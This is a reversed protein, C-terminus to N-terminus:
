VPLRCTEPYPQPGLKPRHVGQSRNNPEIHDVATSPCIEEILTTNSALCSDTMRWYGCTATFSSRFWFPGYSRTLLMRTKSECRRSLLPNGVSMLRVALSDECGKAREMVQTVPEEDWFPLSCLCVLSWPFCREGLCKRTRRSTAKTSIIRGRDRNYHVGVLVIRGNEKCRQLVVKGAEMTLFAISSTSRSVLALIVGYLMDVADSGDPVEAQIAAVWAYFSLVHEATRRAQITILNKTEQYM